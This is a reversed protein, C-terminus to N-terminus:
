LNSWSFPALNKRSLAAFGAELTDEKNDRVKGFVSSPVIGQSDQFTLVYSRRDYKIM